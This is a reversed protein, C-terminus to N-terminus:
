QGNVLVFKALPATKAKFLQLTDRDILYSDAATLANLFNNEIEMRTGECAMKTSGVTMKIGENDSVEFKGFLSNCGGNGDLKNEKSNFRVFVMKTDPALVVPKGM